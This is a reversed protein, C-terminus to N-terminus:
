FSIGVEIAGEPRTMLLYKLKDRDHESTEPNDKIDEDEFKSEYHRLGFYAGVVFPFSEGIYRYGVRGHGTMGSARLQHTMRGDEDLDSQNVISYEDGPEHKWVADLKRYGLGLTWFLGSMTMSRSFRSIHIAIEFGKTVLSVNKEEIARDTYEEGESVYIFETAFSAQGNMNFEFRAAAEKALIEVPASVLVSRHPGDKAFASGCIALCLLFIYRKM